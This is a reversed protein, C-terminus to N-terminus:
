EKFAATSKFSAQARQFEETEAARAKAIGQAVGRAIILQLADKLATLIFVVLFWDFWSLDNRFANTDQYLAICTGIAAFALLSKAFENKSLEAWIVFAFVLVVPIIIAATHIMYGEVSKIVNTLAGAGLAILAVLLAVFKLHEKIKEKLAAKMPPFQVGAKLWDAILWRSAPSFAM